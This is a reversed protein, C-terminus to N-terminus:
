RNRSTSTAIQGLIGIENNFAMDYSFICSREAKFLMDLYELGFYNVPGHGLNMPRAPPDRRRLPKRNSRIRPAAIM